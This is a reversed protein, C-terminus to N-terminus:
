ILQRRPRDKITYVYQEFLDSYHVGEKTQDKELHEKLFKSIKRAAADELASEAEDLPDDATEKLYWHAVVHTGFLDPDENQFLNKRRPQQVEEAVERLIEEFNHAQMQGTRVMHSVLEDYIRDKTAGPHAQLFDRIIKRAVERFTVEDAAAPIFEHA